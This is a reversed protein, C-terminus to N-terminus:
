ACAACACLRNVLDANMDDARNISMGVQEFAATSSVRVDSLFIRQASYSYAGDCRLPCLVIGRLDDGCVLCGEQRSMM